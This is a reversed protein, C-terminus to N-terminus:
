GRGKGSHNARWYTTCEDRTPRKGLEEMVKSAFDSHSRTVRDIADFIRQNDERQNQFARDFRDVMSEVTAAEAKRGILGHTHKWAWASIATAAVGLAAAIEAIYNPDNQPM